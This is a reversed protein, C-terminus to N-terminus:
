APGTKRYETPSKGMVKKFMRSFHFPDSYGVQRAISQVTQTTTHLLECARQMKLRIFFQIPSANTQEKFLHSYHSPSFQAVEALDELDCPEDIHDRMYQISQLIREERERGKKDPSREHIKLHGFLRGLSTSVGLLRDDTYGHHVHAFVEEFAEVILRTDPVYALPSAASVDLAELYDSVDTGAVHAWLISWPVEEDAGYRHPTEAPILLAWGESISHRHGGMECWGFGDTCYILITESTGEPREVFHHTASPFHGIDTVYFDRVIPLSRCRERIAPPVATLREGPFGERIRPATDSM